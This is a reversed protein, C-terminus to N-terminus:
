GVIQVASAVQSTLLAYGYSLLANIPDTPPRKVRGPFPWQQQDSIMQGFGRFYMASAAGELGLITAIDTGQMGSDGNALTPATVDASVLETLQRIIHGMQQIEQVFRPDTQRRNARQLMTRQNSLKGIVFSRALQCRKRTEHHARHQALRLLSNKSLGPTLRGQFVGYHNLFHIEINRELLLRVASAMITVDGMVVVDEVKILPICKKRASALIAGGEGRREPIQILLCDETDRRVLAHDETLYLTPM